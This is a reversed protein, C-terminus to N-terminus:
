CSANETGVGASRPQLVTKSPKGTDESEAFQLINLLGLKEIEKPWEKTGYLEFLAKYFERYVKAPALFHTEQGTQRRLTFELKTLELAQSSAYQKLRDESEQESRRYAVVSAVFSGILGALGGALVSIIAIV